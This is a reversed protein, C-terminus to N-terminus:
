SFPRFNPDFLIRSFLILHSFFVFTFFTFSNKKKRQHKLEGDIETTQEFCIQHKKNTKQKQRRRNSTAKVPNMESSVSFTHFFLSIAFFHFFSFFMTLDNTRNKEADPLFMNSGRNEFKMKEV